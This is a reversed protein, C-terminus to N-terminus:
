NAQVVLARLVACSHQACWRCSAQRRRLSGGLRRLLNCEIARKDTGVMIGWLVRRLAGDKGEIGCVTIKSKEKKGEESIQATKKGISENFGSIFNRKSLKRITRTRARTMFTTSGRHGERRESEM